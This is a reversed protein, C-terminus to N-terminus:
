LERQGDRQGPCSMVTLRQRDDVGIDAVVDRVEGPRPNAIDLAGRALQRDGSAPGSIIRLHERQDGVGHEDRQRQRQGTPPPRSADARATFTVLREAPQRLLRSQLPRQALDGGRAGAPPQVLPRQPLQDGVPHRIQEADRGAGDPAKVLPPHGPQAAVPRRLYRAAHRDALWADYVLDSSGARRDPDLIKGSKV